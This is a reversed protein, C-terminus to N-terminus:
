NHLYLYVAGNGGFMGGQNGGGGGSGGGGPVGGPTSAAAGGGVYTQGNLTVDKGSNANGGSAPSGSQGAGSANGGPETQSLLVTSGIAVSATGGAGYNERGGPPVTITLTQGPTYDVGAKLTAWKWVAGKGGAAAGIFGSNYGGEGGPILVVDIFPANPVVFSFTGVTQYDQRFPQFNVANAAPVLLQGTATMRPPKVNADSRVVPVLLAANSSFRPVARSSVANVVPVYVAGTAGFRPAAMSADGRVAPVFLVAASSLRAALVSSSLSVAPAFAGAAAGFPSLVVVDSGANIRFSPVFLKGTAAVRPVTLKQTLNITPPLVRANFAPALGVPGVTQGILLVPTLLAGRASLTPVTQLQGTVVTPALLGARALAVMQVYVDPDPDFLPVWFFGGTSGQVAWRGQGFEVFAGSSGGIWHAM